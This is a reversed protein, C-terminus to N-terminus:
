NISSQNIFSFTGSIEFILLSVLSFNDTSVNLNCSFKSNRKDKM